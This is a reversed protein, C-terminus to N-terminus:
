VPQRSVQDYEAFELGFQNHSLPTNFARALLYGLAILPQRWNQRSIFGISRPMDDRGLYRWSMCERGYRSGLEILGSPYLIATHDVTLSSYNPQITWIDRLAFYWLPNPALVVIRAQPYYEAALRFFAGLDDLHELVNSAFIMTVDKTIELIESTVEDRNLLNATVYQATSMRRNEVCRPDVIDVGVVSRASEVVTEHISRNRIDRTRSAHNAWGFDM